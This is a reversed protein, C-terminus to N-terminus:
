EGTLQFVTSTIRKTQPRIYANFIIDEEEGDEDDKNLGIVKAALQTIDDVATSFGTTETDIVVFVPESEASQQDSEDHPILQTESSNSDNNNNNNISSSPVSTSNNNIESNIDMSEKNNNNNNNNNSDISSVSVTRPWYENLWSTINIDEVVNNSTSSKKNAAKNRTNVTTTSATTATIAITNSSRSSASSLTNRSSVSAINSTSIDNNNNNNNNNYSSKIIPPSLHPLMVNTNNTTALNSTATHANTITSAIPNNVIACSQKILQQIQEESLINNRSNADDSHLYRDIDNQLETSKDTLTDTDATPPEIYISKLLRILKHESHLLERTNNNDILKEDDDHSKNNDDHIASSSSSSTSSPLYYQHHYIKYAIDKAELFM